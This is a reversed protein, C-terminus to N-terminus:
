EYALGSLSRAPAVRLESGPLFVLKSHQRSLTYLLPLLPYCLPNGLDHGHSLGTLTPNHEPESAVTWQLPHVCSVQADSVTLKIICTIMVCTTLILEIARM